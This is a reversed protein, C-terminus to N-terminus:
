APPPGIIELGHRAALETLLAPDPDQAAVEAVFNEFGAPWSLQLLRLPEEARNAFAHPLRRPLLAFAGAGAEWTRDGCYLQITGSLIYFAEDDHQHLHWPTAFGPPCEQESLSLAEGTESGGAKVTMATGLFSHTTGAGAPLYLASM